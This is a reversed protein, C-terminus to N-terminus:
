PGPIWTKFQLATDRDGTIGIRKDDPAVRGCMLLALASEDGHFVVEPVAERRDLLWTAGNWTIISDIVSGDFRFAVPAEPRANATAAFLDMSAGYMTDITRVTILDLGVVGRDVSADIDYRHLGAEFVAMHLLTDGDMQYIPHEIELPRELDDSTVQEIVSTLINRNVTLSAIVEEPAADHAIEPIPVPIGDQPIGHLLRFHSALQAVIEVLHTAVHHVDWGELPSDARWESPNLIHLRGIIADLDRIVAERRIDLETMASM